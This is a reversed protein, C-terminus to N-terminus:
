TFPAAAGGLWSWFSSAFSRPAAIMFTPAGDQQWIQVSLHAVKTVATSGTSFVSPHLDIAFGKALVDRAESGRIQVLARSDSQDTVAAVGDLATDLGSLAHESRAVALWQGPASWVLDVDRGFGVRGAEPAACGLRENLLADLSAASNPRVIITALAVADLLEVGLGAGGRVVGTQEVKAWASTARWRSRDSM